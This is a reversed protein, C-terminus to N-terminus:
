DLQEEACLGYRGYLYVPVSSWGHCLSGASDFDKAGKETEWFTTAGQFLMRGWIKEIEDLVFQRYQNGQQLLVDYKYISGSLTCPIMEESLMKDIIVPILEKPVVGVYLMLAQTLTHLEEPATKGFGSECVISKKENNIRTLYVQRNSDYFKEHIARNIKKHLEEYTFALDNGLIECLKSFCYFADSVMANLPSDYPPNKLFTEGGCVGPRWEYFNWYEEGQYCPILDNEQIRKAFGEIIEKISDFIEEIFEKDQSYQFYEWIQRIFITSFSPITIDVKGPSCLELLKDERLSHAILRLSAKPFETEGFAYYGSLMQIRSDFTYLAQERWPCDEYHDHVCLRLTNVGVDKIKQHLRDSLSWERVSLPYMAKRLGAHYLVGEKSYILFQLYRAGLRQFPQFFQNRGKRAFYSGCFNREDVYSRVRLDDLHEGYGILVECEEPVEFDLSLFGTTEEGADVLFYIGSATQETIHWSRYEGMDNSYLRFVEEKTRSALYVDQMRKGITERKETEQFIGQMKIKGTIQEGITVKKTPRPFLKKEKGIGYSKSYDVPENCAEYKFVYGMQRNIREMDGSVYNANQRSFCEETSNLICQEGQWVAFIVGPIQIRHVSNDLGMVYQMVLLENEGDTMYATIDLEDYVQYTEYGPYQGCDVFRGNIYVAYMSHASIYLKTQEKSKPYFLARYDYYTNVVDKNKEAFIWEAKDFYSTM